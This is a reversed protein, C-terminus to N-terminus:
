ARHFFYKDKKIYTEVSGLLIKIKNDKLNIIKFFKKVFPGSLFQYIQNEKCQSLGSSIFGDSNELNKCRNIFTEIERQFCFTGNLFYKLGVSFRLLNINKNESFTQSFCFAYDGLLDIEKNILKNNLYKSIKLKPKYFFFNKGIKKEFDKKLLNIKRNDIKLIVWM